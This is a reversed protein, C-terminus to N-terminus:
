KLSILVELENKEAEDGLYWESHLLSNRFSCLKDFRALLSQVAKKDEKNQDRLEEFLAGFITRLEAAAKDGVIVQALAQNNLGERHFSFLILNRVAACVREFEVVFKGLSLM